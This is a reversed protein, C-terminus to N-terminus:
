VFICPLKLIASTWDEENNKNPKMKAKNHDSLFLNQFSCGHLVCINVEHLVITVWKSSLYLKYEVSEALLQQM